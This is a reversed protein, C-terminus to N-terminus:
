TSKGAAESESSDNTAMDAVESESRSPQAVILAVVVAIAVFGVAIWFAFHYGDVLAAATSEGGSVLEKTRSSSFTALVALGM